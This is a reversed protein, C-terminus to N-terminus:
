LLCFDAPLLWCASTLLCFDAPLLGSSLGSSRGQGGYGQRLRTARARFPSPCDCNGRGPKRNTM